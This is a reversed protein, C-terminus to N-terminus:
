GKKGTLIYVVDAGVYYLRALYKASPCVGEGWQYINNDRCGIAIKADKMKPFIRLIEEYARKGISAEGKWRRQKNM